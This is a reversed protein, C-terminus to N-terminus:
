GNGIKLFENFFSLFCIKEIVCRCIIIVGELLNFFKDGLLIDM